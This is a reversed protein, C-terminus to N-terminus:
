TPERVADRRDPFGAGLTADDMRLAYASPCDHPRAGEFECGLSAVSM